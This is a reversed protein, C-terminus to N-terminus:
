GRGGEWFHWDLIPAGPEMTRKEGVKRYIELNLSPAPFFVDIFPAVM